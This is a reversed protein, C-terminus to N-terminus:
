VLVHSTVYFSYKVLRLIFKYLLYELEVTAVGLGLAYLLVVDEDTLVVITGWNM